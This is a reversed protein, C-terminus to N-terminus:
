RSLVVPRLVGNRIMALPSRSTESDSNRYITIENM